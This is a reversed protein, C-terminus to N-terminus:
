AAHPARAPSDSKAAGFHRIEARKERNQGLNPESRPVSEPVRMARTTAIFRTNFPASVASDIADAIASM